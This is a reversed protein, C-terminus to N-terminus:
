ALQKTLSRRYAEISRWWGIRQLEDQMAKGTDGLSWQWDTAVHDAFEIRQEVLHLDDWAALVEEVEQDINHARLELELRKVLYFAFFCILM